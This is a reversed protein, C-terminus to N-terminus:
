LAGISWQGHQQRRHHQEPPAGTGYMTNQDQAPARPSLAFGVLTFAVFLMSIEHNLGQNQNITKQSHVRRLKRGAPLIDPPRNIADPLSLALCCRATGMYQM